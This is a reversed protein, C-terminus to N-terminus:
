TISGEFVEFFMSYNIMSRGAAGRVVEWCYGFWSWPGPAGFSPLPFALRAPHPSHFSRPAMWTRSCRSTELLQESCSTQGSNTAPAEQAKLIGTSIRM